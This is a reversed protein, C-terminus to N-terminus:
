SASRRDVWSGAPFLHHLEGALTFAVIREQVAKPLAKVRRAVYRLAEFRYRNVPISADTRLTYPLIRYGFYGLAPPKGDALQMWNAPDKELEAVIAGQSDFHGASLYLVVPRPVQAILDLLASVKADDIVWGKPTHRYLKLLELTATYGVQVQGKPGGPELTDLLRKLAAAGHAKRAQCDALVKDLALLALNQTAEDCVM